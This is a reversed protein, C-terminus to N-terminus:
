DPLEVLQWFLSIRRIAEGFKEFQVPKMIYADVGLDYSEIKDEDRKSTTLVVVRLRRLNDIERIRKLVDLGGMKPMNLDLLLVGPRPANAPPAYSGERLLYDMCEQGDRVICLENVLNHDKWARKVALIDHKSDEALLIPFTDM